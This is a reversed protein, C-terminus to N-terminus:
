PQSRIAAEIQSASRMRAQCRRLSDDNGEQQHIGADRAIENYHRRAILACREREAAIFPLVAQAHPVFDMWTFEVASQQLNGDALRKTAAEALARAIQETLDPGTAAEIRAALTERDTM